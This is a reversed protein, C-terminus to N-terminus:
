ASRVSQLACEEIPDRRPDFEVVRTAFVLCLCELFFGANRVAICLWEWGPSGDGAASVIHSILQVFFIVSLAARWPRWAHILLFGCVVFCIGDMLSNAHAREEYPMWHIWVNTIIWTALLMGGAGVASWCRRSAAILTCAICVMLYFAALKDM